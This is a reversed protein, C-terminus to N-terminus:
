RSLWRLVAQPSREPLAMAQEADPIQDLYHADCGTVFRLGALDPRHPNWEFHAQIQYSVNVLYTYISLDNTGNNYRIPRIGKSETEIPNMVRIADPVWLFSPKWYVSELIGKVAQYTPVPYSFKEGGVRTIPDSFLAYRGWVHLTITNSYQM